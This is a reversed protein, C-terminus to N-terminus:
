GTRPMGDHMWRQPATLPGTGAGAHAGSAAALSGIVALLIMTALAMAAMSIAPRGRRAAHGPSGVGPSDMTHMRGRVEVAAAM